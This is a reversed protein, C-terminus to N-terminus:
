SKTEMKMAVPLLSLAKSQPLLFFVTVTAVKMMMSLDRAMVMRLSAVAFGIPCLLCSLSSMRMMRQLLTLWLWTITVMVVWPTSHWHAM